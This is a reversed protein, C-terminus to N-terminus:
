ASSLDACARLLGKVFVFYLFPYLCSSFFQNDETRTDTTQANDLFESFGTHGKTIEVDGHNIFVKRM